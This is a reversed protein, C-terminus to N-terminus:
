WWAFSGNVIEGPDETVDLPPGFLGDCRIQPMSFISPRIFSALFWDVYCSREPCEAAVYVAGDPREFGSGISAEWGRLVYLSIARETTDYQDSCLLQKASAPLHWFAVAHVPTFAYAHM